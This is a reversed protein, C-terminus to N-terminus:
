KMREIHALRDARANDKESWCREYGHQVCEVWWGKIGHKRRQNMTPNCPRPRPAPKWEANEFGNLIM